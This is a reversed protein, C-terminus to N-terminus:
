CWRKGESVIAVVAISLSPTFPPSSPQIKAPQISIAAWIQCSLLCCCGPRAGICILVSCTTHCSFSGIQESSKEFAPMRAVPPASLVMLTREPAARQNARRERTM